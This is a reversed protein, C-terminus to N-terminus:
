GALEVEEFTATGNEIELEAEQVVAGATLDATTCNASSGPGSNDGGNDDARSSRREGPWGPGTDDGSNDEGLSSDSASVSSARTSASSRPKTRHGHRQGHRRRLPRDGAQGNDADFSAITGANEEGDLVGDDDTDRERPNDGALFEARNRLHDGIRTAALRTRGEALPSPAEGLPGPHPRPQPGKDRRRRRAAGADGARRPGAVLVLRASTRHRNMSDEETTISSDVQTLGIAARFIM